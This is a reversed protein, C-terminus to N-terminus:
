FSSCTGPFVIFRRLHDLRLLERPYQVTRPDYIEHASIRNALTRWSLVAAQTKAILGPTMRFRLLIGAVDSEIPPGGPTASPVTTQATYHKLGRVRTLTPNVPIITLASASTFHTGRKTSM